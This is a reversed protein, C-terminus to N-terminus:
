QQQRRPATAFLVIWTVVVTCSVTWAFVLPWISSQQLMLHNLDDAFVRHNYTRLFPLGIINPWILRVIGSLMPEREQYFVDPYAAFKRWQPTAIALREDLALVNFNWKLVDPIIRRHYAIAHAALPVPTRVVSAAVRETPAIPYHGWYFIDWESDNKDIWDVCAEITPVGGERLRADDEFVTVSRCMPYLTCMNRLAHKHAEGVATGHPDRGRGWSTKWETEGTTENRVPVQRVPLQFAHIPTDKPLNPQAMFADIGEKSTSILAIVDVHEIPEAM